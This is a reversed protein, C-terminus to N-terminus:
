MLPAARDDPDSTPDAVFDPNKCTVNAFLGNSLADDAPQFFDKSSEGLTPGERRASKAAHGPAFAM